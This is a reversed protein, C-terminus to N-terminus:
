MSQGVGVEAALHVVDTAGALGKAVAAPDRIDGVLLDVGDDPTFRAGAEAGTGHVQEHLSDLVRVRHGRALLAAVVHRGIFGAGGTVLVTKM